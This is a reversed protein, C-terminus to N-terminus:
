PRIFAVFALLSLLGLPVLFVIITRSLSSSYYTGDSHTYTVYLTGNTAPTYDTVNITGDTYSLVDYETSETLTWNGWQNMLVLQGGNAATVIPSYTLTVTEPAATITHSENITTGPTAADAGITDLIVLGIVGSVVLIIASVLATMQGKMHM